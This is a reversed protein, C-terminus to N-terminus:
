TSLHTFFTYFTSFTCTNLLTYTHLITHSFSYFINFTCTNLLKRLNSFHAFTCSIPNFDLLGYGYLYPLIDSIKVWIDQFDLGGCLITASAIFFSCDRESNQNQLYNSKNFTMDPWSLCCFFLLYNNKRPWIYMYRSKCFYKKVWSHFHILWYNTYLFQCNQPNFFVANHTCHM